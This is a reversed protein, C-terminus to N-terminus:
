DGQKELVTTILPAPRCTLVTPCRVLIQLMAPSLSGVAGGFLPFSKLWFKAKGGTSVPNLDLDVQDSSDLDEPKEDSRQRHMLLFEADVLFSHSDLLEFEYELRVKDWARVVMDAMQPTDSTLHREIVEVEYSSEDQADSSVGRSIALGKLMGSLEIQASM